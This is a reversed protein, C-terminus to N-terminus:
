HLKAQRVDPLAERLGLDNSPQHGDAAEDLDVSWENFHLRVLGDDLDGRRKRANNLLMSGFFAVRDLYTRDEDDNTLGSRRAAAGVV